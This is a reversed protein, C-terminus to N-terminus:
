KKIILSYEGNGLDISNELTNYIVGNDFLEDVQNWCKSVTFTDDFLRMVLNVCTPILFLMIIAIAWNRIVNKLKKEDPTIMLKTFNIILAIIGVIPGIMQILNLVRKFVSLLTAVAYSGCVATLDLILM